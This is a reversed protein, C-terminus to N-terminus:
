VDSSSPFNTACFVSSLIVLQLNGLITTGWYPHNIISFGILISSKPTGGNLSVGLQFWKFFVVMKKEAAQFGKDQKQFNTTARPLFISFGQQDHHMLTVQICFGLVALSPSSVQSSCVDEFRHSKEM